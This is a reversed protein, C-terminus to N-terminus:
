VNGNPSSRLGVGKQEMIWPSFHYGDRCLVCVRCCVVSVRHFFSIGFSVCSVRFFLFLFFFIVVGSLRWRLERQSVWFELICGNAFIAVLHVSIHTKWSTTIDDM